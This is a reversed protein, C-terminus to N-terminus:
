KVSRLLSAFSSLDPSCGPGLNGNMDGIVRRFTTGGNPRQGLVFYSASGVAIREFVVASFYPALIPIGPKIEFPTAPPTPYQLIIAQKEENLDTVHVSCKSHLDRHPKYGMQSFFTTLQFTLAEEGEALFKQIVGSPDAFLRRPLYEYCFQYSLVYSDQGLPKNSSLFNFLGMHTHANCTPKCDRTLNCTSHQRFEM